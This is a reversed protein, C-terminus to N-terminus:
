VEWELPEWGFDAVCDIMKVENLCFVQRAEAFPVVTENSASLFRDKTPCVIGVVHRWEKLVRCERDQGNRTLKSLFCEADEIM